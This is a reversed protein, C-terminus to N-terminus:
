IMRVFLSGDERELITPTKKLPVRQANISYHTHGNIEKPIIKGDAALEQLRRSVSKPVALTGNKNRWERRQLDGASFVGGSSRLFDVLQVEISKNM